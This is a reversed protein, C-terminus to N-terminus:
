LRSGNDSTRAQYRIERQIEHSTTFISKLTIVPQATDWRHKPYVIDAIVHALPVNVYVSTAQRLEQEYDFPLPEEDVPDHLRKVHVADLVVSQWDYLENRLIPNLGDCLEKLTSPRTVKLRRPPGVIRAQFIATEDYHEIDFTVGAAEKRTLEGTLSLGEEDTRSNWHLLNRFADTLSSPPIAIHYVLLQEM